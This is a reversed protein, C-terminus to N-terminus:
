LRANAGYYTMVWVSSLRQSEMYEIASRYAQSEVTAIDRPTARAKKGECILRYCLTVSGQEDDMCRISMDMRAQSHDQAPATEASVAWKYENFVHKNFIRAWYTNAQWEDGTNAEEKLKSLYPDIQFISM